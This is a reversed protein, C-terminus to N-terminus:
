GILSGLREWVGFSGLDNLTTFLFLSLLLALGGRFAWEQARASVPRRRVAEIAYFLLHGGDLMPVPLLNIFGLNISILAVLAAFAFPGAAAGEGAVKAIKLPGGLQEPSVRGRVMQVLGDVIGETMRATYRVATATADVPGLRERATVSSTVGLLGAQFTRTGDKFTTSGLTVPVSRLQEGHQVTVPITENPRLLVIRLIDDFTPTARGAIAVLRDGPQIGAAAAASGPKVSGVVNTLPAGVFAFFAAFIAIALLFNAVPGALVILFRKWVPKGAFSDPRSTAGATAGASAPDADGVFRVYGGLPLWGVKWRTGRKDTWGFIERGFGISFIEAGVGFARAVLFHGLEHVFVLPGIMAVFAIVILWLPPDAFM